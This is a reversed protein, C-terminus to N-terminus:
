RFEGRVLAGPNAGAFADGVGTAVGGGEGECELWQDGVAKDRDVRFNRGIGDGAIQVQSLEGALAGRAGDHLRHLDM